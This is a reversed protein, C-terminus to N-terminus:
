RPGAPPRGDRRPRDPPGRRMKELLQERAEPSLLARVRILTGLRNKEMEAQLASIAEVHAFITAEDPEPSELLARMEDHAARLRRRIARGSVRSADLLADVEARTSEELALEEVLRELRGENSGGPGGGPPPGPPRAMATGVMFLSVIALTSAVLNRSRIRHM